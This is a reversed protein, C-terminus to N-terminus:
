VSLVSEQMPTVRGKLFSLHLEEGDEDLYVCFVGSFQSFAEIKMKLGGGGQLECTSFNCMGPIGLISSIEGLSTFVPCPPCGLLSPCSGPSLVHTDVEPSGPGDGQISM